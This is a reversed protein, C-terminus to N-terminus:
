QRDMTRGKSGRQAARRRISKEIAKLTEPPTNNLVDEIDDDAPAVLPVDSTEDNFMREDANKTVVHLYAQVLDDETDGQFGRNQLLRIFADNWELKLTVQGEASIDSHIVELRPEQKEHNRREVWLKVIEADTLNGTMEPPLRGRLQQAYASNYDTVKLLGDTSLEEMGWPAKPMFHKHWLKVFWNM